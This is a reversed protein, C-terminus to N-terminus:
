GYPSKQTFSHIMAVDVLVGHGLAVQGVRERGLIAIGELPM